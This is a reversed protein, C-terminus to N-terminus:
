IKAERRLQEKHSPWCKRVLTEIESNVADLYTLCRKYTSYSSSEVLDYVTQMEKGANDIEASDKMTANLLDVDSLATRMASAWEVHASKNDDMGNILVTTFHYFTEFGNSILSETNSRLTQMFKLTSAFDVSTPRMPTVIANAANLASVSILGLAPPPDIVVVDYNQWVSRIGDRLELLISSDEHAHAAWSYEVDGLSMNSPVLDIGPFYSNRICKSFDDFERRLFEDITYRLGDPHPAGLIHELDPNLGFLTTASGQPDLDVMLISYGKLAMYQAFHVGISTKGCGGKLSSWSLVVPEDTAARGPRTDFVDRMHNIAELTYGARRGTRPDRDPGEWAGEQEKVRIMQPSRGVMEAAQGIKFLRKFQKRSEPSFAQKQLNTLLAAFLREKRAVSEITQYPDTPRLLVPQAEPTPRQNASSHTTVM